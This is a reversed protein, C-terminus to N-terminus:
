AFSDRYAFSLHLDIRCGSVEVERYIYDIQGM